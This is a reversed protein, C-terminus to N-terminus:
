LQFMGGRDPPTVELWDPHQNEKIAYLCAAGLAFARDDHHGARQQHDIRVRGRQIQKLLLSALETELDDRKESGTLQGCGPYWLIRQEVILQRLLMALEHNGRSGAFEFRQIPYQHELKQITGLLQYEDVIFRDINFAQAVEHMWEEVWAVPTPQDATPAVVDMRDVIMLDGERHLVVGITYDRKEAYDIAAIYAHQPEGQERYCLTDRRCAEAETLTIFEGEEHQWKNLWLREYVPRPLLQRQEDLSESSIWSAQPGELSSFYWRHHTRANERVEWQWGRGVGANTLVVLLCQRRKSASSLLSYWLDAKEWHCLEDCVVFDPLIGWSSQVDSSILDLRSGTYRNEVYEKRVVLSPCLAPNLEILKRIAQLILAAQDRDAAAAVGQLPRSANELIWAIQLAMDSTKSHGRPRELYARRLPSRFSSRPNTKALQLWALDLAAFDQQQWPELLESLPETQEASIKIQDRFYAPSQRLLRNHAVQRLQLQCKLRWRELWTLLNTM